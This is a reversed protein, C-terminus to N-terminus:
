MRRIWDELREILDTDPRWVSAPPMETNELIELMVSTKASGPVVLYESPPEYPTHDNYYLVPADVAALGDADYRFDLQEESVTNALAGDAHCFGCNGHLDGRVGEHDDGTVTPVPGPDGALVDAFLGLGQSGLQFPEPGIPWEDDGDATHCFACTAQSPVVYTGGPLVLDQRTGDTLFADEGEWVFVGAVWGGVQKELLRTEITVGDQVFTKWLRSGVPWVWDDPDSVDITSGAPIQALRTKEAGNSWLPYRVEFEIGGDGFSTESLRDGARGVTPRDGRFVLKSLHGGLDLAWVTGDPTEAMSMVHRLHAIAVDDGVTGADDITLGRIWGDYFEGYLLVGALRGGYGQDSIRTGVAPVKVFRLEGSGDVDEEVFAPDHHEWYRVPAEYAGSSDPGEVDDAGFDQGPQSYIDLEEYDARGPDGICLVAGCDVMRWPNRLGIAVAKPEDFSAPLAPTPTGTAPDVFMALVGEALDTDDQPEITGMPGVSLYLAPEPTERDWFVLDGASHGGGLGCGPSLVDVEGTLELPHTSLDFQILRCGQSTWAYLKDHTGDGFRPDVTISLLELEWSVINVRGLEVSAAPDVHVVDGTLTGVLLTGDALPVLDSGYDIRMTPVFAYQNPVPGPTALSATGQVTDTGDTVTVTCSWEAARVADEAPVAAGEVTMAASTWGYSLTVADGDPDTAAGQCALSGDAGETVSVTPATPAHNGPKSTGGGSPEPAADCAHLLFWVGTM